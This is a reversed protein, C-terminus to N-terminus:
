QHWTRMPFESFTLGKIEALSDDVMKHLKPVWSCSNHQSKCNTRCSTCLGQYDDYDYSGCYSCYGRANNRYGHANNRSAPSFELELVPIKKLIDTITALSNTHTWAGSVLLSRYLLGLQMADCQQANAKVECTPNTQWDDRLYSCELGDIHARLSKVCKERREVLKVISHCWILM